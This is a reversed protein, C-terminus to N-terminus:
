SHAAFHSLCQSNCFETFRCPSSRMNHKQSRGSDASQEPASPDGGPPPPGVRVWLGGGRPGPYGLTTRRTKTTKKTIGMTQAGKKTKMKNQKKRRRKRNTGRELFSLYCLLVYLIQWTERAGPGSRIACPRELM